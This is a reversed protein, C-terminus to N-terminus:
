GRGEDQGEDFSEVRRSWALEVPPEAARRRELAPEECPEAGQEEGERLKPAGTREADPAEVGVGALPEPRRGALRARQEAELARAAGCRRETLHPICTHERDGLDLREYGEHARVAGLGEV